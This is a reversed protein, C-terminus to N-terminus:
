SYLAGPAVSAACIRHGPCGIHTREQEVALGAVMGGFTIFEMELVSFGLGSIRPFLRGHIILPYVLELPLQAKLPCLAM